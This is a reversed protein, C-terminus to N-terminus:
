FPPVNFGRRRLDAIVLARLYGAVGLSKGTQPNKLEKAVTLVFKKILLPVKPPTLHVLEDTDFFSYDTTNSETPSRGLAATSAFLLCKQQASLSNPFLQKLLDPILKQKNPNRLAAEIQHLAHHCNADLNTINELTDQGGSARKIVHHEHIAARPWVKGCIGCQFQDLLNAGGLFVPM